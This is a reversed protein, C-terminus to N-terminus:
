TPTKKPPTHTTPPLVYVGGLAPPVAAPGSDFTIADFTTSGARNFDFIWSPSAPTVGIQWGTLNLRRFTAAHPPFTQDDVWWSNSCFYWRDLNSRGRGLGSEPSGYTGIKVLSDVVNGAGAPVFIGRIAVDVLTIGWPCTRSGLLSGLGDDMGSSQTVRHIYVGDVSTSVISDNRIGIGYTALEIASGINGQILTLHEFTSWSSDVKINDDGAHLYCYGFYSGDATVRPGDAADV